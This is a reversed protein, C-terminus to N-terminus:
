ADDAEWLEDLEPHEELFEAWDPDEAIEVRRREARVAAEEFPFKGTTVPGSLFM